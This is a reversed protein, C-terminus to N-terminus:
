GVKPEKMEDAHPYQREQYGWYVNQPKALTDDGAKQCAPLTEEIGASHATLVPDTFVNLSNEWDSPTFGYWLTRDFQELSAKVVPTALLEPDSQLSKLVPMVGIKARKRMCDPNTAYWKIFDFCVAQREAAIQPNVACTSAGGHTAACPAPKGDLSPLPFAGYPIDPHLTAMDEALWTGAYVMVALDSVLADTVWPLANSGVKDKQEWDLIQQAAARAGETNMFESRGDEAFLFEGHQYKLMVWTWRVDGHMWNFGARKVEGADDYLTLQAALKTLDPWSKPIDKDTLGAEDWLKQNYFILSSGLGEDFWYLKGGLLNADINLVKEKLEAVDADSWPAMLGSEYFQVTWNPHMWWLDPGSGAAINLPLKTWYEQWPPGAIKFSLGPHAQAYELAWDDTSWWKCDADCEPLWFNLAMEQPVATPAPTPAATAPVATAEAPKLTPQPQPTPQSACAALLAGCAAASLHLFARRTVTRKKM